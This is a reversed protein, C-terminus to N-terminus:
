RFRSNKKLGGWKAVIEWIVPDLTDDSAHTDAENFTRFEERFVKIGELEAEEPRRPHTFALKEDSILVRGQQFYPVSELARDFKSGYRPTLEIRVLVKEKKLRPKLVAMLAAGINADEITIKTFKLTNTQLLWLRKCHNVIWEVLDPFEKRSRDIDLLWLHDPDRRNDGFTAMGTHDNKGAAKQATDIRVTIRDMSWPIDAATFPELWKEEFLSVSVDSPNQQYQSAFVRKGRPEDSDMDEQADRIRQLAELPKREPWLAGTHIQYDIINAHSYERYHEPPRGTDSIAAFCLVDWVDGTGGSMLWNSVDDPHTRQQIVLVPTDDHNLRTGITQGVVDKMQSRYPPSSMGSAKEPDDVILMGDFPDGGMGCEFGTVASSTSVAHFEGGETTNWHKKAFSDLAMRTNPFASQFHTNTLVGKVNRSNKQVLEDSYSTHMIRANPNVAFIRSSLSKVGLETKGHRPAINLLVRKRKGLLIDDFVSAIIEIHPAILLTRKESWTFAFRSWLLHNTRAVHDFFGAQTLQVEDSAM